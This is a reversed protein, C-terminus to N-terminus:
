PKELNAQTKFGNESLNFHCTNIKKAIFFAIIPQEGQLKCCIIMWLLCFKGDDDTESVESEIFGKRRAM